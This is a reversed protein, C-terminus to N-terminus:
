RYKKRILCGEDRHPPPPEQQIGCPGGGRNNTKLTSVEAEEYKVCGDCVVPFHSINIRLALHRQFLIVFPPSATM